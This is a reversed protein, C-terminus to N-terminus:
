STDTAPYSPWGIPDTTDGGSVLTSHPIGSTAPEAAASSAAATPPRGRERARTRTAGSSTSRALVAAGANAGAYHAAAGATRPPDVHPLTLLRPEAAARGVNGAIHAALTPRRPGAPARAVNGRFRWGSRVGAGEGAATSTGRRGPSGAGSCGRRGRPRATRRRRWRM